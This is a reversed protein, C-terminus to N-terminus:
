GSAAARVKTLYGLQQQLHVREGQMRTRELGEDPLTMADLETIEERIEAEITDINGGAKAIREDLRQRAKETLIFPGEPAPAQQTM